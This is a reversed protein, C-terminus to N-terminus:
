RAHLKVTSGANGLELHDINRGSKSDGDTIVVKMNAQGVFRITSIGWNAGELTVTSTYTKGSDGSWINVLDIWRGDWRYTEDGVTFKSKGDLTFKVSKHITM